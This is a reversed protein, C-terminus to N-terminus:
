NHFHAKALLQKLAASARVSNELKVGCADYCHLPILMVIMLRAAMMAAEFVVDLVKSPMEDTSLRLGKSIM